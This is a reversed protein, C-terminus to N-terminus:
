QFKSRSHRKSSKNLISKSMNIESSSRLSKKQPLVPTEQPEPARSKTRKVFTLHLNKLSRKWEQLSLEPLIEEKFKQRSNDCIFRISLVEHGFKLYVMNEDNNEVVIKTLSDKLCFKRSIELLEKAGKGKKQLLSGQKMSKKKKLKKNLINEYGSGLIIPPLFVYEKPNETIILIENKFSLFILGRKLNLGTFAM